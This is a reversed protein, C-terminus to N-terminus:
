AIQLGFMQWESFRHFVKVFIGTHQRIRQEFQKDGLIMM